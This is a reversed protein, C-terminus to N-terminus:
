GKTLVVQGRSMTESKQLLDQLQHYRDLPIDLTSFDLVRRVRLTNGKSEFDRALRFDGYNVDVKEPLSRVKLGKPYTVTEEGRVAFTTMLRLDFRRATLESGHLLGGTILDLMGAQGPAQFVAYKGAPISYDKAAFSLKIEVPMSFDMFDTFEIQEIIATPSIGQVIRKFLNEREEPPLSQLYGRLALDPLGRTSITIDSHFTGSEDLRSAASVQYLNKESPEIPTWALDEGQENCVLVARDQENAAMYEVTKEVTPDVYFTSDGAHVAVVAHNFQDVPIEGDIKWSPNMLTIDSRIGAERLMAVMLAAKDRCVGYKNRFTVAASEPKYGAKRGTLATEVYRIDNSVFYFIARLKEDATRKDKTLENVMARIEDNAVMTTEALDNYWRSWTEWDKVTTVLLQPTVEPTPPMGPEPVLQPIYASSWVHTTVGDRTSKSYPIEGSRAKWHLEMREPVAVEVYKAMIPDSHQFYETLDFQGDMPAERTVERLIVEIEAGKQLEPFTIIKERVNDLFFKGFAPMPVDKIASTDVEVVQGGPLHVRAAVVEITDYGLNYVSVDQAYQRIARDTLVAVRYHRLATSKGDAAVNVSTCDFKVIANSEEFPFKLPAPGPPENQAFVCSVFGLALMLICRFM